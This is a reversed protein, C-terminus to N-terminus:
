KTGWREGSERIKAKIYHYVQDLQRQSLDAPPMAAAPQERTMPRDEKATKPTFGASISSAQAFGVGPSSLASSSSLTQPVPQSLPQPLPMVSRSLAGAASTTAYNLVQQENALAMTEETAASIAGSARPRRAAIHTLEHGLLALGEPQQPTYGGTRFLIKDDYTVADAQFQRTLADAAPNAYIKVNPVRLNLLSGLFSKLRHSIVGYSSREIQNLWRQQRLVIKERPQPPSPPASQLRNPPTVGDTPSQPDSRQRKEQDPPDPTSRGAPRIPQSVPAVAPLSPQAPLRLSPRLLVSRGPQDFKILRKAASSSSLAADAATERATAAPEPPLAFLNGSDSPSRWFIDDADTQGVGVGVEINEKNFQGNTQGAGARQMSKQTLQLSLGVSPPVYKTRLKDTFTEWSNEMDPQPWKGLGPQTFLM